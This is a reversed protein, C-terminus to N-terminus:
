DNEKMEKQYERKLVKNVKSKKSEHEPEKRKNFEKIIMQKSREHNNEKCLKLLEELEYDSFKSLMEKVIDIVQKKDDFVVELDINTQFLEKQEEFSMEKLPNRYGLIVGEGDEVLIIDESLISNEEIIDNPVSQIGFIQKIEEHTFDNFKKEVINYYNNLFKSINLIGQSPIKSKQKM